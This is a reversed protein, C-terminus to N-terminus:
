RQVGQMARDLIIELACQRIEIVNCKTLEELDSMNIRDFSGTLKPEIEIEPSEVPLVPPSLAEKIHDYQRLTLVTLAATIGFWLIPQSQSDMKFNLFQLFLSAILFQLSPVFV